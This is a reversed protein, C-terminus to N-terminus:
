NKRLAIEADKISFDNIPYIIDLNNLLYGKMDSFSDWAIVDPKEHFKIKGDRSITIAMFPGGIDYQANKSKVYDRIDKKIIRISKKFNLKSFFEPNKIITHNTLIGDHQYDLKSKETGCLYPVGHEDFGGIKISLGNIIFNYEEQTYENQLILGFKLMWDVPSSVIVSDMKKIHSELFQRSKGKKGSNAIIYKGSVFLKQLKDFYFIRKGNDSFVARTDAVFVIGENCIASYIFTGKVSQNFADQSNLFCSSLLFILFINVHKM